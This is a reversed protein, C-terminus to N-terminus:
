RYRKRAETLLGSGVSTYLDGEVHKADPFSNEVCAKILPLATSGGTTFVTDIDGVSLGAQILADDLASFIREVDRELASQLMAQTLTRPDTTDDSAGEFLAGLPVEATAQSSLTIKATEVLAALQHGKRRKLLSILQRIPMKDSVLGLLQELENFVSREYLLHIRHWTALDHYYYSPMDMTPKDRMPLGLGFAGMVGRLSLNRDFDTGGLHIGHNALLDDGRDLLHHREPSLRIVTFDSTGGGIDVILALEESAIRSEYDLAAAIPEYQFSVEKFGALTAIAGLHQEAAKDLDPKTDNFFVPRGMVVADLATCEGPLTNQAATRLRAVFLGIIEDFSYARGLVQTTDAMTSSGLISKMSRMLRGPEGATYRAIAKRGFDITTDDFGFFLASPLTSHWTGTADQELPVMTDGADTHVGITSNSTGFDLGCITM